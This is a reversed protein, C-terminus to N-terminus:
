HPVLALLKDRRAQERDRQNTFYTIDAPDPYEEINKELRQIHYGANDTLIAVVVPDSLKEKCPSCTVSDPDNTGRGPMAGTCLAGFSTEAYHMPIDNWEEPM